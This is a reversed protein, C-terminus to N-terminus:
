RNRIHTSGDRMGVWVRTAEQLFFGTEIVGPIQKLWHEIERVANATSVPVDLLYNGGDTVFWSNVNMPDTETSKELSLRPQATPFRAKIHALTMTAGFAVIEVPVTCRKGLQSVQKTEDVVIWLKQSAHAVIKERLLAGGHGKILQLEADVEDAGDITVHIPKSINPFCAQVEELSVLPLQLSTALKTTQESTSVCRIGPINKSALARIFCAATQGTGLGLVAHPSICTAVAEAIRQRAELIKLDNM